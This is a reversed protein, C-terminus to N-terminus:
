STKAIIYQHRNFQINKKNNLINKIQELEYTSLNNFSFKGNINVNRLQGSYKKSKLNPILGEYTELIIKDNKKSEDFNICLILDLM